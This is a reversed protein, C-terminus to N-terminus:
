AGPLLFRPWKTARESIKAYQPTTIAACIAYKAEHFLKWIEIIDKTSEAGIKALDLIESLKPPVFVIDPKAVKAAASKSSSQPDPPAPSSAPASAPEPESM